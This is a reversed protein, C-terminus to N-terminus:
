AQLSHTVPAQAPEDFVANATYCLVIPMQYHVSQVGSNIPVEERSEEKNDDDELQLESRRM